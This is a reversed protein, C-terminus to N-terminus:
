ANSIKFTSKIQLQSESFPFLFFISQHSALCLFMASSCFEAMEWVTRQHWKLRAVAQLLTRACRKERFYIHFDSLMYRKKHLRREM